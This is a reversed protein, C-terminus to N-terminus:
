KHRLECSTVTDGTDKGCVMQTPVSKPAPRAVVPLAIGRADALARYKEVTAAVADAIHTSPASTTGAVWSDPARRAEAAEKPTVKISM